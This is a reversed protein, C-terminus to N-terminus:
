RWHLVIGADTDTQYWRGKGCDAWLSMGTVNLANLNARATTKIVQRQLLKM